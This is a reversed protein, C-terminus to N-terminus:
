LSKLLEKLMYYLASGAIGFALIKAAQESSIKELITKASEKIMTDM